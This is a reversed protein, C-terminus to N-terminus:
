GAKRAVHRERRRDNFCTRCRRTGGTNHMTNELTYPHGRKCRIKRANSKPSANRNVRGTVARLHAPEICRRHLCKGGPCTNSVNHCIHDIEHGEPIPGVWLEYAIRHAKKRPVRGNVVVGTQVRGYGDGDRCGNWILCGDEARSSRILLRDGVASGFILTM